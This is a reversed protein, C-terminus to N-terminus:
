ATPVSEAHWIELELTVRYIGAEGGHAPPEYGETEGALHISKATFRAAITGRLGDFAGRVAEVLAEAGAYTDAWCDIQVRHMVLGAAARLHSVHEGSVVLYTLYPRAAKQPALHPYVREAVLGAITEDGTLRAFVAQRLTLTAM